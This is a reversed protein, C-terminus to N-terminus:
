VYARERIGHWSACGRPAPPSVPGCSFLACWVQRRVLSLIRSLIGPATLSFAVVSDIIPQAACCIEATNKPVSLCGCHCDIMNGHAGTEVGAAMRSQSYGNGALRRFTRNFAISDLPQNSLTEALVAGFQGLDVNDNNAPGATVTQGRGDPEGRQTLHPPLQDPLDLHFM